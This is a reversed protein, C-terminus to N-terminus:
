SMARAFRVRSGTNLAAHGQKSHKKKLSKGSTISNKLMRVLVILVTNM